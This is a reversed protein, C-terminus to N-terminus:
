KQQTRVSLLAGGLALVLPAAIGYGVGPGRSARVDVMALGSMLTDVSAGAARAGIVNAILVAIVGV